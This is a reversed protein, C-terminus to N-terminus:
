LTGGYKEIKEKLVLLEASTIWKEEALIDAIKKLLEKKESM